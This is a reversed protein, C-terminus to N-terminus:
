FASRQSFLPDPVLLGPTGYVQSITFIVRPVFTSNLTTKSLVVMQRTNVNPSWKARGPPHQRKKSTQIKGKTKGRRRRGDSLLSPVNSM